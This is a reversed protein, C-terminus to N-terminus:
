TNLISFMRGVFLLFTTLTGNDAEFKELLPTLALINM